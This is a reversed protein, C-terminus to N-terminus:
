KNKHIVDVEGPLVTKDDKISGEFNINEHELGSFKAGSINVGEFDAYVGFVVNQKTDEDKSFDAGSLDKMYVTQPNLLTVNCNKFNVGRVDVNTFDVDSLDFNYLYDKFKDKIKKYGYETSEILYEQPVKLKNTTPVSTSGPEKMEQVSKRLNLGMQSFAEKEAQEREEKSICEEPVKLVTRVFPKPPLLKSRKEEVYNTKEAKTQNLEMLREEDQLMDEICKVNTQYNFFKKFDYIYPGGINLERVYENPALWDYLLGDKGMVRIVINEHNFKGAKFDQESVNLNFDVFMGNDLKVTNTVESLYRGNEAAVHCNYQYLHMIDEISANEKNPVIKDKLSNNWIEDNLHHEPNLPTKAGYYYVYRTKPNVSTSLYAYDEEKDSNRKFCITNNYVFNGPVGETFKRFERQLENDFYVVKKSMIHYLFQNDDIVQIGNNM